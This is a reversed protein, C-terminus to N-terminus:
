TIIRVWVARLCKMKYSVNVNIKMDKLSNLIYEKTIKLYFKMTRMKITEWVNERNKVVEETTPGQYLFNTHLPHSYPHM